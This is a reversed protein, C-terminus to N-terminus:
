HYTESQMIQDHDSIILQFVSHMVNKSDIDM